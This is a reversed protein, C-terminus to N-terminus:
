VFASNGSDSSKKGDDVPEQIKPPQPRPLHEDDSISIADADASTMYALLANDDDSINSVVDRRHVPLTSEQGPPTAWPNTSADGPAAAAAAPPPSTPKSSPPESLESRWVKGSDDGIVDKKGDLAEAISLSLSDGIDGRTTLLSPPSQTSIPSLFTPPNTSPLSEQRMKVPFTAFRASNPETRMAGFDDVPSSLEVAPARSTNPLTNISPPYQGHAPFNPFGAPTMPSDLGPEKPPLPLPPQSDTLTVENVGQTAENVLANIKSHGYYMNRPMGPQTLDEPIESVLLRGYEGVIVGKECCELLGGFKFGLWTRTSSRKFDGLSAEETMIDSDLTRIEDQLRHLLETQTDLNKHEPSMKHLKKEADEAKRAVTRRRRRLEDLAEERTRIAKLHERIVHGHGAYQTLASSFHVLLATSASLIDQGALYSNRAGTELLV